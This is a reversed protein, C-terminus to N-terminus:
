PRTKLSNKVCHAPTTPVQRHRVEGAEGLYFYLLVGEAPGTKLPACFALIM